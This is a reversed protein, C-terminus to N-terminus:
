ILNQRITMTEIEVKFVVTAKAKTAPIQMQKDTYQSIIIGLAKIKDDQDEIFVAKGFGIISQYKMDWSCPDKAEVVGAVVDFEFCINPDSRLLDLKQGKPASHFYLVNNHYGFCIPVIYPTKGNNMGLRCVKVNNIIANIDSQNSFEKNKIM